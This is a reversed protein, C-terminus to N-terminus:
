SNEALRYVPGDEDQGVFELRPAHTTKRSADLEAKLRRIEDDRMQLAEMGFVHEDAARRRASLYALRLRAVEGELDVIRTALGLPDVEVYLETVRERFAEGM